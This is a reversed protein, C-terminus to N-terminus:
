RPAFTRSWSTTRLSTVARQGDDTGLREPSYKSLDSARIGYIANYFLIEQASIEAIPNVM